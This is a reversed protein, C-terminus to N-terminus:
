IILLNTSNFIVWWEFPLDINFFLTMLFASSASDRQTIFHWVALPFSCLIEHPQLFLPLPAVQVLFLKVSFDDPTCKCVTIPESNGTVVHSLFPVCTFTLPVQPCDLTGRHGFLRANVPSSFIFGRLSHCVHLSHM